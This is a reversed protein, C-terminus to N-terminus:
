ANLRATPLELTPNQMTTPIRRGSRFGQSLFLRPKV